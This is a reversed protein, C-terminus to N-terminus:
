ESDGDIFRRFTRDATGAIGWTVSIIGILISVLFFLLGVGFFIDISDAIIMLGIGSIFMFFVIVSGTSKSQSNM